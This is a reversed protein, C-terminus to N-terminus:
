KRGAYVAESLASKRRVSSLSPFYTRKFNSCSYSLLGKSGEGGAGSARRAPLTEKQKLIEDESMQCESQGVDSRQVSPASLCVRSNAGRVATESRHQVNSTSHQVNEEQWRNRGQLRADGDGLLWYSIDVVAAALAAAGWTSPEPVVILDFGTATYDAVFSYGSFTVVQNDAISSFTGSLSTGDLLVYTTNATFTLGSAITVDLTSTSGLSLVPQYWSTGRLRRQASLM